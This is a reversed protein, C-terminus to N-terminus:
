GKPLKKEIEQSKIYEGFDTREDKEVNKFTRKECSKRIM